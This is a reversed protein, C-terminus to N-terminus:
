AAQPKSNSRRKAKGRLVHWAVDPRLEECSVGTVAEIAPCHKPPAKGTTTVWLSVAQQTVREGSFETIKAALAAQGHALDIARQLPTIEDM